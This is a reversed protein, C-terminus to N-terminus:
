RDPDPGADNERTKGARCRQCEPQENADIHIEPAHCKHCYSQVGARVILCRVARRDAAIGGLLFIVLIIILILGISM